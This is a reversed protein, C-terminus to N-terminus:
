FLVQYQLRMRTADATTGQNDLQSLDLQWKGNNKDLYYNLGITREESDDKTEYDVDSYRAVIEWTQPLFFFGAQFTSGTDDARGTPTEGDRRYLEALLSFPGSYFSAELDRTKTHAGVTATNLGSSDDNRMWAVGLSGRTTDDPMTQFAPGENKVPGLPNWVVRVGDRLGDIDEGATNNKGRGEGNAVALQYELLQDGLYGQIMAGPEYNPAFETAAISIDVLSLATTSMLMERGFPFKFQGMRFSDQQTFGWDIYADRVSAGTDVAPNVDKSTTSADITLKYKVNPAGSTGEATIRARPVSFNTDDQADDDSNLHEVRAQLEGRLGLSWTGDPSRFLLKTPTGGRTQVDPAQLRQLSAEILVTENANRDARQRALSMLEEYESADILGKERLIDLLATEVSVDGGQQARAPVVLVAAVAAMLIRNRAFFM